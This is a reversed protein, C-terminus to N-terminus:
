LVTHSEFLKGIGELGEMVIKQLEEPNDEQELMLSCYTSLSKLGCAIKIVEAAVEPTMKIGPQLQWVPKDSM